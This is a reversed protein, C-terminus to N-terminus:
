RAQQQLGDVVQRRHKLLDHLQPIDFVAGIDLHRPSQVNGRLVGRDSQVARIPKQTFPEHGKASRQRFDIRSPFKYAGGLTFDVAAPILAALLGIRVSGEPNEEGPFKPYVAYGLVLAGVLDLWMWGSLSNGLRRYESNGRQDVVRVQPNVSRRSMVIETPTTGVLEGAVFVEAGPPESSVRIRQSTGNAITACGAMWLVASAIGIFQLSKIM